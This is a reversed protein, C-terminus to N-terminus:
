SSEALVRSKTYKKELDLTGTHHLMLMVLKKRYSKKSIQSCDIKDLICKESAQSLSGAIVCVCVCVCQLLRRATCRREGQKTVHALGPGTDPTSCCISVRGVQLKRSESQTPEQKGKLSCHFYWTRGIITGCRLHLLVLFM